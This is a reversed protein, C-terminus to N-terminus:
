RFSESQPQIHVKSPNFDIEEEGPMALLDLISDRQGTLKRYQEMSLLVHSPKGRDLIFVPGRRASRKAGGTDQNFERSSLTVIPMQICTAVNGTFLCIKKFSGMRLSSNVEVEVPPAYVGQLSASLVTALM